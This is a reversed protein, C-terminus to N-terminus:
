ARERGIKKKLFKIFEPSAQSFTKLLHDFTVKSWGKRQYKRPSTFISCDIAKLKVGEQHASWVLLHDEGFDAKENFRSLRFFTEKKLCFGQDGFPIQLFRSRFKVGIENIWMLRIESPSFRLDFFYLQDKNKKLETKLLSIAKESIHSDCHLFWLWPKHAISAGHNQQIARGKKTIVTHVRAKMPYLQLFEDVSQKLNEPSVLICEDSEDLSALDVLLSKWGDESPAIPIIVSLSM